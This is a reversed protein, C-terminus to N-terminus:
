KMLRLEILLLCNVDQTLSHNAAGTSSSSISLCTEHNTLCLITLVAHKCSVRSLIYPNNVLHSTLIAQYQGLEKKASSTLTWLSVFFSHPWYGAMKVSCAQDIYSKNGYIHSEPFNKKCSVAPLGSYALYSWSAQEPLWDCPAIQNM